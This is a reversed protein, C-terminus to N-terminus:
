FSFLFSFRSLFIKKLLLFNFILLGFYVFFIKRHPHAPIRSPPPPMWTRQNETPELKPVARNPYMVGIQTPDM